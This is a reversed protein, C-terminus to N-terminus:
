FHSRGITMLQKRITKKQFWCLSPTMQASCILQAMGSLKVYDIFIQLLSLGYKKMFMGNFADPGPAHNSPMDKIANDIEDKTFPHDMEPLNVESILSRRDFLIDDFETIGLRDRFSAWLAGAKLSHDTVSGNPLQLMQISNRRYSLTALAQFLESNEDGFKVWRM